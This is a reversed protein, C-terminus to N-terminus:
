RYFFTGIIASVFCGVLALANVTGLVPFRQPILFALGVCFFALGFCLVQWHDPECFIARCRGVYSTRVVGFYQLLIFIGPASCLCFMIMRGSLSMPAQSVGARVSVTWKAM